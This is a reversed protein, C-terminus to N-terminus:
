AQVAKATQEIATALIAAEHPKLGIVVQTKEGSPGVEYARVLVQRHQGQGQVEIYGKFGNSQHIVIM